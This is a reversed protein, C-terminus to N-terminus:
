SGRFNVVDDGKFKKQYPQLVIEEPSKTFLYDVLCKRRKQSLPTLTKEISKNLEITCDVLTNELV